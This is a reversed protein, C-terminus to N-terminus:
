FLEDGRNSSVPPITSLQWRRLPLHWLKRRATCHLM